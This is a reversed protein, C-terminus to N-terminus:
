QGGGATTLQTVDVVVTHDGSTVLTDAAVSPTEQGEIVTLSEDDGSFTVALSGVHDVGEVGELLAYVDSHCPLEGFEWGRGREGGTLPHLFADIADTLAAELDAISGVAGPVVTTDIAVEVYSPGRVVLEPTPDGNADDTDVAVLTAPARASVDTAVQQKLAVSPVPRAVSDNPVILLTVWGPSHDGAPDMAPICRARALRRSADLAIREYDAATVARDRDRLRKPARDLV